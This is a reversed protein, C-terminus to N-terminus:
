HELVYLGIQTYAVVGEHQSANAAELAAAFADGSERMAASFSALHGLADRFKVESLAAQAGFEEARAASEAMGALAQAIRENTEAGNGAVAAVRARGDRTTAALQELLGSQDEAESFLGALTTGAEIIEDIPKLAQRRDETYGHVAAFAGAANSVEQNVGTLEAKIEEMSAAM